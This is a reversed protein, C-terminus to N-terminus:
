EFRLRRIILVLSGKKQARGQRTKKKITVTM